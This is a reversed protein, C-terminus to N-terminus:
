FFQPFFVKKLWQTNFYQMFPLFVAKDIMYSEKRLATFTDDIYEPPLLPLCHLRYYVSKARENSNILANLGPTQSARKKVAQTFHFYCGFLDAGTYLQRLVNRIAREYDSTFTKATKLDFINEEIYKFVSKYAHETKRSM